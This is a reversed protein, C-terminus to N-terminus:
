KKRKNHDARKKLRMSAAYDGSTKNGQKLRAEYELKKEAEYRKWRLCTSKCHITRLPCDTMTKKDFCPSPTM